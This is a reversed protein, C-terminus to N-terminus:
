RKSQSKKKFYQFIKSVPKWILGIISVDLENDKFARYCQFNAKTIRGLNKNSDGGTRMKVLVQPIYYSKVRHKELFRLMLEFDAAISYDTKFVGYEEYVNKRVFFTPHPPMWGKKFLSEKYGCSEWYRVIKDSNKSDVYVLNGWCIDVKNNEMTDVVKNIVNESVYFDDSNIIGIIEGTAAKIGKNMADYIGNDKESIYCMTFVAGQRGEAEGLSSGVPLSRGGKCYKEIIDVTGDSSGGDIIIYEIHPYKQNIVSLITDEITDKTNFSVTIVSVKPSNM